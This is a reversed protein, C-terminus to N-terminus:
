RYEIVNYATIVCFIFNIRTLKTIIDSFLPQYVYRQGNYFINYYLGVDTLRTRTYRVVVKFSCLVIKEALIIILLVIITKLHQEFHSAFFRGETM